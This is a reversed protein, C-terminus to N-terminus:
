LEPLEIKKSDLLEGAHPDKAYLRIILIGPLIEAAMVLGIAPYSGTFILAAGGLATSIAIGLSPAISRLAMMTGRASPVQDLTLTLWAITGAMFFSVHILQVFYAALFNPMLFFISACTFNGICGILWVRKTGVRNLIRGTFISIIIIVVNIILWFVVTNSIQQAESLDAWFKQRYFAISFVGTYGSAVLMGGVICAVASKNHLVDSFAKVYSKSSVVQSKQTERPVARYVLILSAISFPLILLLFNLQWGGINTIMGLLPIGALGAAAGVAWMYSVVKAKKNNPVLEGILSASMIGVIVTAGGELAYFFELTPLNPAFFSGIASVLMFIAGLILLSKKRFRVALFGMFLAFIVEATSNIAGIQSVFGISVPGSDGFYTLAIDVSLMSIMPASFAVTFGAVILAPIFIKGTQKEESVTSGEKM